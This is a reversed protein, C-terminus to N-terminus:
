LWLHNVTSHSHNVLQNNDNCTGTLCLFFLLHLVEVKDRASIFDAILGTSMMMSHRKPTSRFLFSREQVFSAALTEHQLDLTLLAAALCPLIM